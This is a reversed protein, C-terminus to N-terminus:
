WLVLNPTVFYIACISMVIARTFLGVIYDSLVQIVLNKSFSFDMNTIYRAIYLLVISNM